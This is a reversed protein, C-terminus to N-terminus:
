AKQLIGRFEELEPLESIERFRRIRDVKIAVPKRDRGYQIMGSVHVRKRFAQTAEDFKDEPIFCNVPRDSLADWVVFQFQGRESITSLKGEIAGYAQYQV